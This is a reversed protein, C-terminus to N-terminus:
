NSQYKAWDIPYSVWDISFKFDTPQTNIWSQLMSVRFDIDHLHSSTSYDGIEFWSICWDLGPEAPALSITTSDPDFGTHRILDENTYIPIWENYQQAQDTRVTIVASLSSPHKLTTLAMVRTDGCDIILQNHEKHVLVPKKIPEIDLRQNIWNVNMLRAITDYHRSDWQSFDNGYSDLLHNSIEVCQTLTQVPTFKTIALGPHYFMLFDCGLVDQINQNM